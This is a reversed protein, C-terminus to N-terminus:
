NFYHNILAIDVDVPSKNSYQVIGIAGMVVIGFIVIKSIKVIYRKM